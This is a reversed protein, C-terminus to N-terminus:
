SAALRGPSGLPPLPALGPTLRRASRRTLEAVRESRVHVYRQTTKVSAHGLFGRIEEMSAGEDHLATAAAHRLQHPVVGDPLARSILKGLAAPTYHRGARQPSPFLWGPPAARIKDALDRPLTVVRTKGGKGHVTLDDGRLDRSHIRATEERRTGAIAMIEIALRILPRARRLAAIVETDTAPNSQPDPVPIQPLRAAPNVEIYGESHAWCYFSVLSARASKATEPRWDFQAMWDILDPRTVAWPDRYRRALRRIYYRRLNRTGTSKRGAKLERQWAEM